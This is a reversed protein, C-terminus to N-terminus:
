NWARRGHRDPQVLAPAGAAPRYRSCRASQEPRATLRRAPGPGLTRDARLDRGRQASDLHTGVAPVGFSGVFGLQEIVNVSAIVIAFWRAVAHGTLVGFGALAIVVGWILTVWGWTKLDFVIIQTPTLVYYHQRAVAIVGELVDVAGLVILLWGAFAVWGSSRSGSGPM